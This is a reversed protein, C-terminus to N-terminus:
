SKPFVHGDFINEPIAPNNIFQPVLNYREIIEKGKEILLGVMSPAHADSNMLVRVGYEAATKWFPFDHFYYQEYLVVRRLNVPSIIGGNIELPINLDAAAACIERAAAATDENWRFDSYMFLDPHAMFAFIGSEM